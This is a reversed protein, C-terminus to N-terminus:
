PSSRMISPSNSRVFDARNVEDGDRGAELKGNWDMGNSLCCFFM